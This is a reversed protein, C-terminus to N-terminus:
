GAAAEHKIEDLAANFGGSTLSSGAVRSVDLQDIDKGVVESAINDAFQKQFEGQRTGSTAHPTVTVDTVTGGELTLDVTISEQGSPAVYSGDATYSGDAYSGGAGGVASESACSTLGFGTAGVFGVLAAVRAASRIAPTV